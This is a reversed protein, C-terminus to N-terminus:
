DKIKQVGHTFCSPMQDHSLEEISVYTDTEISSVFEQEDYHNDNTDKSIQHNITLRLDHPSMLHTFTKDDAKPAIYPIEYEGLFAEAMSWYKPKPKANRPGAIEMAWLYNHDDEQTESCVRITVFPMNDQNRISFLRVDGKQFDDLYHGDKLCHEMFVGERMFGRQTLIEVIKFGNKFQMIDKSAHEDEIKHITKHIAIIDQEAIDLVHNIDKLGLLKKPLGAPNTKQLWTVNNEVALELWNSILYIHGFIKRDKKPDFRHWPGGKEWKRKLWAPPNEPMDTVESLYRQDKKLIKLLAINLLLDVEPNGGSLSYLFEEISEPNILNYTM